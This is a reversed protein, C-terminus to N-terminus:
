YYTDSILTYNRVCFKRLVLYFVSDEFHVVLFMITRPEVRICIRQLLLSVYIVTHSGTEVSIKTKIQWPCNPVRLRFNEFRPQLAGTFKLNQPPPVQLSGHQVSQKDRCSCLKAEKWTRRCDINDHDQHLSPPLPYVLPLFLCFSFSPSLFSPLSLPLSFSFSFSLFSPLSLPLFFSLPLSFPLPMDQFLGLHWSVLLM